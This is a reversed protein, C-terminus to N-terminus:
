EIDNANFVYEMVPTMEEACKVCKYYGVNANCYECRTRDEGLINDCSKCAIDGRLGELVKGCDLCSHNDLSKKRCCKMCEKDNVLGNKGCFWCVLLRCVKCVNGIRNKHPEGCKYCRNKCKVIGFRNMCVNGVVGIVPNERKDHKNMIYCNEVIKVGCPCFEEIDPERITHNDKIYNHIQTHDSGIYILEKNFYETKSFNYEKKLGRILRRLQPEEIEAVYRDLEEETMDEGVQERRRREIIDM